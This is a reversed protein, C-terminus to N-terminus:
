DVQMLFYFGFFLLLILYCSFVFGHKFEGERKGKDLGKNQGIMMAM